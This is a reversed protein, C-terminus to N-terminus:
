DLLSQELKRGITRYALGLSAITLLYFSVWAGQPTALNAILADLWGAPLQSFLYVPLLAIGWCALRAVFRLEWRLLGLVLGTLMLGRDFILDMTTM